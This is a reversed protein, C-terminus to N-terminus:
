GRSYSKRTKKLTLPVSQFTKINQTVDEGVKGDGRTAATKLRGDEYTLVIHLGDIKLECVYSLDSPRHGLEKELMKLIREEWERMDEDSFADNFSWQPVTHVIKEFKDLPKGAV